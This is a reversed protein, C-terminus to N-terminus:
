AVVSDQFNGLQLLSRVNPDLQPILQVGGEQFGAIGGLSGRRGYLDAAQITAAFDVQPPWVVEPDAAPDWAPLDKRFASVLGNAADVAAELADDDQPRAGAIGLFTRVLGISTPM